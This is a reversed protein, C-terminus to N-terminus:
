LSSYTNTSSPWISSISHHKEGPEPVPVDQVEVKFDPGENICVAAKCTKPIDFHPGDSM